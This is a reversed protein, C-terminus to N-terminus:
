IPARSDQVIRFSSACGSITCFIMVDGYFRSCESPSREARQLWARVTTMRAGKNCAVALAKPSNCEPQPGNRVPSASVIVRFGDLGDEQGVESCCSDTADVQVASCTPQFGSTYNRTYYPQLASLSGAHEGPASKCFFYIFDLDLWIM